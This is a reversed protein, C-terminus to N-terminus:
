QKKEVAHRIGLIGLGMLFANIDFEGYLVYKLIAYAIFGFGSLMGKSKLYWLNNKKAM